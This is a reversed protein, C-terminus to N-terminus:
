VTHAHISKEVDKMVPEHSMRENQRVGHSMEQQHYQQIKNRGAARALLSQCKTQELLNTLGCPALAERGGGGDVTGTLM